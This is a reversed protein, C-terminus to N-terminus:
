YKLIENRIQTSDQPMDTHLISLSSDVLLTIPIGFNNQLEIMQSNKFQKNIFDKIHLRDLMPLINSSNGIVFKKLTIHATKFYNDIAKQHNNGCVLIINYENSDKQITAYTEKLVSKSVGCWTTYIFVLNLPKNFISKINTEDIRICSSPKLESCALQMLVFSLTIVQKM